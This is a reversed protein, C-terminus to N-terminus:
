VLAGATEFIKANHFWKIGRGRQPFMGLNFRLM